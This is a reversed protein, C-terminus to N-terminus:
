NAGDGLNDMLVDLSITQDPEGLLTQNDWSVLTLDDFPAFDDNVVAPNPLPKKTDYVLWGTVNWDLGAPIADFLTTDMSAVFPFNESTDNSTTILFSCRQAASLYIMSAEAPHTYVGDVELITMNHGEFWIYQGAFAGVNIVRFLYTRSPRVLVNLDQTDNLLASNPVPEAGTPNAKSIFFSLLGPMQKHYWDSVTL